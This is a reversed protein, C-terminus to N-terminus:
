RDGLDTEIEFMPPLDGTNTPEFTRPATRWAADRQLSPESGPPTATPTSATRYQTPQPNTSM